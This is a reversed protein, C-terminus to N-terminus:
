TDLARITPCPAQEGCAPCTRTGRHATHLQRVRAIAARMTAPTETPACRRCHPLTAARKRQEPTDEDRHGVLTRENWLELGCRTAFSWPGPLHATTGPRGNVPAIYGWRQTTM